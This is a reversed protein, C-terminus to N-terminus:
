AGKAYYDFSAHEWEPLLGRLEAKQADELQRLFAKKDWEHYIRSYLMAKGSTGLKPYLSTLAEASLFGYFDDRAYCGCTADALLADREEPELADFLLLLDSSHCIKGSIATSVFNGAPESGSLGAVLQFAGRCLEQPLIRFVEWFNYRPNHERELRTLLATRGAEDFREYLGAIEPATLMAHFSNAKETSLTSLNHYAERGFLDIFEPVGIPPGPHFFKRDYGAELLFDRLTMPNVFRLFASRQNAGLNNFLTIGADLGLGSLLHEPVLNDEFEERSALGELNACFSFLQELTIFQDPPLSKTGRPKKIDMYRKAKALGQKFNLDFTMDDARVEHRPAPALDPLAIELGSLAAHLLRPRLRDAKSATDRGIIEVSVKPIHGTDTERIGIKTRELTRCVANGLGHIIISM